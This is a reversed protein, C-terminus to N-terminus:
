LLLATFGLQIYIYISGSINSKWHLFGRDGKSHGRRNTTFEEDIKEVDWTVIDVLREWQHKFTPPIPFASYTHPKECNIISTKWNLPGFLAKVFFAFGLYLFTTKEM